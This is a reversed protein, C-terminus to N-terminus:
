GGMDSLNSWELYLKIRPLPDTIRKRIAAPTVPFPRHLPDQLFLLHRCEAVEIWLETAMENTLQTGPANRATQTAQIISLGGDREVFAWPFLMSGHHQLFITLLSTAQEQDDELAADTARRRLTFPETPLLKGVQRLIAKRDDFSFESFDVDRLSISERQDDSLQRLVNEAQVFDRHQILVELMRETGTALRNRRDSLEETVELATEPGHRQVLLWLFEKGVEKFPFQQPTTRHREAATAVAEQCRRTDGVSAESLETFLQLKIRLDNAERKDEQLEIWSQALEYEGNEIMPDIIRDDLFRLTDRPVSSADLPPLRRLAAQLIPMSANDPENRMRQGAAAVFRGWRLAREQVDETAECMTVVSDIDGTQVYLETLSQAANSGRRDPPIANAITGALNRRQTTSLEKCAVLYGTLEAAESPSLKPLHEIADNAAATTIEPAADWDDLLFSMEKLYAQPHSQAILTVLELQREPALEMMLSRVLNDLKRDLSSKMWKWAAAVGQQRIMAKIWDKVIDDFEGSFKQAAIIRQHIPTIDEPREQSILRLANGHDISLDRLEEFPREEESCEHRVSFTQRLAECKQVAEDARGALAMQQCYLRWPIFRVNPNAVMRQYAEDCKGAYLLMGVWDAQLDESLFFRGSKLDATAADAFQGILQQVRVLANETPEAQTPTSM